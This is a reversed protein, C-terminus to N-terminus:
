WASGVSPHPSGPDDDTIEVEQGLNTVELLFRVLEPPNIYRVTAVEAASLRALAVLAMSDMFTVQRTDVEVLPSRYSLVETITEDLEAVNTADIQGGLVLRSQAHSTVLAVWDHPETQESEVGATMQESDVCM